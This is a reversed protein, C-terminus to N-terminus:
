LVVNRVVRVYNGGGLTLTYVGPVPIRSLEYTGIEDVETAPNDVTLTSTTWTTEGNSLSVPVGGLRAGQV